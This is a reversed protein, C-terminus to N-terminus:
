AADPVTVRRWRCVDRSERKRPFSMEDLSELSELSDDLMM